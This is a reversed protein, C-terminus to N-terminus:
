LGFKLKLFTLAADDSDIIMVKYPVLQGGHDLVAHYHIFNNRLYSLIERYVHIQQKRYIPSQMLNLWITEKM